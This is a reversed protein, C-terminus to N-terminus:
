EGKFMAERLAQLVVGVEIMRVVGVGVEIMRVVGV